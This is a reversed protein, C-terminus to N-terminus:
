AAPRLAAIAATYDTAGFIATGAVLTDAGAEIVRPATTPSIGGDV